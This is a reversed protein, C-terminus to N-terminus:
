IIIDIHGTDTALEGTGAIHEIIHMEPIITNSAIYFRCDIHYRNEYCTDLLASINNINTADIFSIEFQKFYLISEQVRLSTELAELFQLAKKGHAQISLTLMRMGCLYKNNSDIQRVEDRTVKKRTLLNLTIYTYTPKPGEQNLWIVKEKETTINLGSYNLAWEYFIESISIQLITATLKSDVTYTFPVGEVAAEIDFNDTNNTLVIGTLSITEILGAVILVKSTSVGAMYTYTIGNLTITYPTNPTVTNIAINIKKKCVWNIM